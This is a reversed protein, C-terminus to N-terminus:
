HKRLVRPFLKRYRTLHNSLKGGAIIITVAVIILTMGLAMRPTLAEDLFLVGLVVATTPELAGLIATPSSGVNAIAATTCLFSIATPLVALGLIYLWDVARAPLSVDHCAFGYCAFMLLGIIVVYFTLTLTPLDKVTSRNIGVLYIAYSLASGFVLLVGTTSLTDGDDTRYLLLIGALAMAICVITSWSAREHYCVAMIVAVLIPYVFLLTSAIGAGMYHYSLFLTISSVSMMLGLGLVPLMQHRLLAFSRRRALMMVVLIPVALLYRFFLVSNSTMGDGYLPIAFIPITGYCAAAVCGQLFGKLKTNM